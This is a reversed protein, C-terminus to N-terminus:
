VDGDVSSRQELAPEIGDVFLLAGRLVCARGAIGRFDDTLQEEFFAGRLSGNDDNQGKAALDSCSHSFLLNPSPSVTETTLTEGEGLRRKEWEQLGGGRM